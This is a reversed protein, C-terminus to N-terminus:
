LNHDRRIVELLATCGKEVLAYVGEFGGDYYPDPVEERKVTGAANAYSLFMHLNPKDGDFMRAVASHNSRDMTLVYDFEALDGRVIQRSRGNYPIDHAKLEAITDYHAPEGAHWAGTGCSDTMIKDSLGAQNIMHQFVGEAMPSRCINGACVFLVKIM